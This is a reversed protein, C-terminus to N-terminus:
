VTWGVPYSTMPMNTQTDLAFYAALSGATFLPAGGLITTETAVVALGMYARGNSALSPMKPVVLEYSDGAVVGIAPLLPATSALVVPLTALNASAAAVVAFSFVLGLDASTFTSLVDFRAILPYGQGKDVARLGALEVVNPDSPRPLGCPLIEFGTYLVDTMDIPDGIRLFADRIM